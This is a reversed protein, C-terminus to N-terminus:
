QAFGPLTLGEHRGPYRSLLRAKGTTVDVGYTSTDGKAGYAITVEHGNLWPGAGMAQGGGKPMGRMTVKRLIRGTRADLVTLRNRALDDTDPAAGDRGFAVVTRGDPATESFMIFVGDFRVPRGGGAVPMLWLDTKIYRVLEAVGGKIAVPEYKGNIPVTRGTRTDILSGPQKSGERPDFALYRGDDSVVLMSGVGIRDEKVTAASITKAGTVLDRVVHAQAQRSYYALLRGDRSIAVPTTDMRTTQALAQPVRYTTGAATVVRWEVASCDLHREADVECSTRYAHSLPGVRGEPLDHVTDLRQPTAPQNAGQGPLTVVATTVGLVVATALAALATGIRRRRRHGAIALDALDVLPADDAIGNLAERLRTM